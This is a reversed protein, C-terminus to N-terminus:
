QFSLDLEGELWDIFQRATRPSMGNYAMEWQMAKQELLVPDIKLNRDEAMKHVIQLYEKKIPSSFVITIGFRDSLSLKEQIADRARVEDDPNDSYFGRRDSFKEKVIHRRNTTAYLLINDPRHEIGGELVAKLATYEEENNGFALDDIFLIFKLGRDSLLSTIKPIQSLYRKPVEVLRLGKEGFENALAKVMSSKGTGRDGYFLINNATKGSLFILTNKVAMEKQRDVLYLRDLTIPDPNKVPSLTQSAGDYIFFVHKCFLGAGNKRHWLIRSGVDADWQTNPERECLTNWDPLNDIIRNIETNGSFRDKMINKIETCSLEALKQLIGLEAAAQKALPDDAHIKGKECFLTFINEDQLTIDEIHQYLNIRHNTLLAAFVESYAKILEESNSSEDRILKLLGVLKKVATDELINIYISLSSLEPLLTNM